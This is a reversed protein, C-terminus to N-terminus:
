CAICLPALGDLCIAHVMADGAGESEAQQGEKDAQAPNPAPRHVGHAQRFEDPEAINM